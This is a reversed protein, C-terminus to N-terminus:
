FSVDFYIMVSHLYIFCCILLIIKRGTENLLSTSTDWLIHLLDPAERKASGWDRAVWISGLLPSCLFLGTRIPVSPIVSHEPGKGGRAEGEEGQSVFFYIISARTGERNREGEGGLSRSPVWM